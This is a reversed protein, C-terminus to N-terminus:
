MQDKSLAGTRLESRESALHSDDSYWPDRVSRTGAMVTEETLTEPDREDAKARRKAVKDADRQARRSLLADMRQSLADMLKNCKDLKAQNEASLNMPPAGRHLFIM